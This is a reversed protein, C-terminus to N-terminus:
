RCTRNELVNPLTLIAMPNRKKLLVATIERPKSHFIPDGHVGWISNINTLLLQDIVSSTHKLIGVVKFAINGHVDTGDTVTRALFEDGISLNLKEAAMLLLKLHTRWCKAKQLKRKTTSQTVISLGLSEIAWTIIVYALKIGSEVYPHKIIEEAAELSINGTPADIHYM